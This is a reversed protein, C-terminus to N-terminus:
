AYVKGPAAIREFEQAHAENFARYQSLANLEALDTALEDACFLRRGSALIEKQLVCSVSRLSVLDVSRHWRNELENARAKLGWPPPYQLAPPLLVAIDIDSQANMEGRAASGYLWAATAEPLTAQIDALLQESTPLAAALM